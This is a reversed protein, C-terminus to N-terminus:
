CRPLHQAVAKPSPPTLRSYHQDANLVKTVVYLQGNPM